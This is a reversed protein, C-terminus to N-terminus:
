HMLFLHPIRFHTVILSAMSVDGLAFGLASVSFTRVDSMTNSLVMTAFAPKVVLLLMCSCGVSHDNVVPAEGTFANM